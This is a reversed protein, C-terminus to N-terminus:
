FGFYVSIGMIGHLLALLISFRAMRFHWTFPVNELKGRRKMVAISATICLSIFLIIGLVVVLPLGLVPTYAIAAITM